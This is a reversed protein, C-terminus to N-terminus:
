SCTSYIFKRDVVRFRGEKLDGLRIRGIRVRILDFVKHGLRDFLRRLHRKKGECVVVRIQARGPWSKYIDASKVKLIDGEDEVGKKLKKLLAEDAEGGVTVMYEKEVEYKPHSLRHCLEGDNTLIMLGRSPKDLRGIPYLRGFSRPIYEMIIKEAFKDESTSTVGRPKNFLIYVQKETNLKKGGVTVSDAETVDAWPERVVKGNVSVKGEKVFEAADRRSCVGSRSIFLNLKM